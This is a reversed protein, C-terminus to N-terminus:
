GLQQTGGEFLARFAKDPTVQEKSGGVPGGRKGALVDGSTQPESTDASVPYRKALRKADELMEEATEGHIRDYLDPDLRAKKGADSQLKEQRLERLEKALAEKESNAREVESMQSRKWDEYEQLKQDKDKNKIRANANERNQRSIIAKAEELTLERTGSEDTEEEQLEMPPDAQSEASSM